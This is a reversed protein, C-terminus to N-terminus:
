AGVVTQTVSVTGWPSSPNNLYTASPYRVGLTVSTGSSATLGTPVEQFTVYITIISGADGNGGANLINTKSSMSIYSSTYGAPGTGAVQRFFESSGINLNYYGQTNVFVSTSGSGGIKTVGTYSTTAISQTGVGASIVITGVASALANFGANIGTGVPHSCTIALQGGANFFYRAQDANGFTCQFTFTVYNGWASNYTGTTTATTGQAAANNRNSFISSLNTAMTGAGGLPVISNGSVPATIPTISTNQHNSMRTVNNVLNSWDLYSVTNGGTVQAQANQGYGSRGYGIGMITNLQNAGTSPTSFNGVFSNFDAAEILSGQTYTM